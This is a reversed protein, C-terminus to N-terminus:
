QKYANDAKTPLTPHFLHPLNNAKSDQMFGTNEQHRKNYEVCLAVAARKMQAPAPSNKAARLQKVEWRNNSYNLILELTARLGTVQEHLSFIRSQGMFCQGSYGGVCHEMQVGEQVLALTDTLPVVEINNIRMTEILSRWEFFRASDNNRAICCNAHWEDSRRCLSKWTANKQLTGIGAQYFWDSVFEIEDQLSAGPAVSTKLHRALLGLFRLIQGLCHKDTTGQKRAQDARQCIEQMTGTELLRVFRASLDQPNLMALINAASLYRAGIQPNMASPDGYICPTVLSPAFPSNLLWQYGRATLIPGDPDAIEFLAKCGHKLFGDPKMWAFFPLLHEAEKQLRTMAGHHEISKNYDSVHVYRAPKILALVSLVEPDFVHQRLLKNFAIGPHRPFRDIGEEVAVNLYLRGNTPLMFGSEHRDLRFVHGSALNRGIILEDRLSVAVTEDTKILRINGQLAMAQRGNKELARVPTYRRRLRFTPM